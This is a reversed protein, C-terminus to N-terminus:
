PFQATAAATSLIADTGSTEGPGYTLTVFCLQDSKPAVELQSGYITGEASQIQYSSDVGPVGGIALDRQATHTAGLKQFEASTAAKIFPVASTGTETVGSASCYANLNRTFHEPSDVESKVDFVIVGHLKQLSNVQQVLESTSAGKLGLKSIASALSGTAPNVQVWSAPAAFSIGQTPGGIRTYGAPVPAGSSTASPRSSSSVSATASASRAGSAAPKGTGSSSSCSTLAVGIGIVVPVTLFAVKIHV